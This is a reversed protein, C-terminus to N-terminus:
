GKLRARHCTFIRAFSFSSNHEFFSLWTCALGSWLYIGIPGAITEIPKIVTNVLSFVIGVTTWLLSLAAFVVICVWISKTMFSVGKNLEDFVSFRNERVGLGYNLRRVGWFLGAHVSNGTTNQEEFVPTAQVWSETALATGIMAVAACFAVFSLFVSVRRCTNM